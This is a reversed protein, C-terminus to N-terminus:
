LIKFSMKRVNNHSTEHGWMEAGYMLIPLVLQDFLKLQCDIPIELKRIITFVAFMSRSAQGALRKSFQKVYDVMVVSCINKQWKLLLIILYFQMQKRVVGRSFVVVKTKIINVKLTWTNCYNEFIQLADQLQKPSEAMLVTDDAYLLILLKILVDLKEEIIDERRQRRRVVLTTAAVLGVM